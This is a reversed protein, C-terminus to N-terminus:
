WVKRRPSSPWESFPSTRQMDGSETGGRRSVNSHNAKKEGPDLVASAATGM